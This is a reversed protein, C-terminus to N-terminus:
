SPAISRSQPLHSASPSPGSLEDMVVRLAAFYSDRMGRRRGLSYGIRYPVLLAGAGVAAILVYEM